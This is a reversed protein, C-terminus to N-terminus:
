KELSSKGAAPEYQRSQGYPTESQRVEGTLKREDLAGVIQYGVARLRVEGTLKGRSRAM